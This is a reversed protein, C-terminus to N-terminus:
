RKAEEAPVEVWKRVRSSELIRTCLVLERLGDRFTPYPPPTGPASGRIAAYVQKFLQKSTDPFGENHGGPFSILSRSDPHVLSPDRLLLENPGDRRGIWLQNPRESEWAVSKKSGDIEFFLRNKRGASVQSVTLVGHAGGDFRLMVTAYDETAIPVPAYDEPKLMKGAYTEVPKLPKRRTKHM